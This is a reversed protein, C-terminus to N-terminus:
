LKLLPTLPELQRGRSTVQNRAQTCGGWRSADLATGLIDAAAIRTAFHTHSDLKFAVRDFQPGNVRHFM